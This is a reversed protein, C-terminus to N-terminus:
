RYRFSRTKQNSDQELCSDMILYFREGCRVGHRNKVKMQLWCGSDIVVIHLCIIKKEEEKKRMVIHM